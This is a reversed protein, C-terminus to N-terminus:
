NRNDSDSLHANASPKSFWVSIGRFCGHLYEKLPSAIREHWTLPLFNSIILDSSSFSSDQDARATMEMNATFCMLARAGLFEIRHKNALHRPKATTVGPNELRQCMLIFPHKNEEEQWQSWSWLFSFLLINSYLCCTNVWVVIGRHLLDLINKSFFYIFACYPCFRHQWFM